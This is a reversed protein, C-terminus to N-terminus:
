TSRSRASTSSGRTSGAASSRARRPRPTKRSAARRRVRPARAASALRSAPHRPHARARQARGARPGHPEERGQGAQRRDRHPRSRDVRRRPRRLRGRHVEVGRDQPVALPHPAGPPTRDRNQRRRDPRDHHHEEARDRRAARAPAAAAALPQAARHGRRTERRAPRRHVQRARARNRESHAARREPRRRRLLRPTPHGHNLPERRHHQREHLHLDGVRHAAIGRRDARRDDDHTQGAGAGRRARVAGGSGIALIGDDPQILDGTGSILYARENNAVILMAQLQRLYKDM